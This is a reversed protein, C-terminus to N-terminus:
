RTVKIVISHADDSLNEWLRVYQVVLNGEGPKVTKFHLIETGGCGTTGEPCDDPQYDMGTLVLQEPLRRVIWDYGTTPNAPLSIDMMKGLAVTKQSPLVDCNTIPIENPLAALVSFSTATLLLMIGTKIHLVKYVENIILINIDLEPSAKLAIALTDLYIKCEAMPVGADNILAGSILVSMDVASSFVTVLCHSNNSKAGTKSM